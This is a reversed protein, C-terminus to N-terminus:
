GSKIETSLSLILGWDSYEWPFIGLLWQFPSLALGPVSRSGVTPFFIHVKGFDFVPVGTTWGTVKDSYQM